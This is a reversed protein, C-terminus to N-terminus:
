DLAAESRPSAVPAYWLLISVGLAVGAVEDWGVRSTASTSMLSLEWCGYMGVFVAWGALNRWKPLPHNPLGGGWIRVVGIAILAPLVYSPRKGLVLQALLVSVGIGVMVWAWRATSVRMTRFPYSMPVYVRVPEVLAFIRACGM